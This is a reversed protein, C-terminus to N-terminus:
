RLIVPEPSRGEFSDAHNGVVARFGQAVRERDEPLRRWRTAEIPVAQDTPTACAVIHKREDKSIVLDQASAHTVVAYGLQKGACFATKPSFRVRHLPATFHDCMRPRHRASRESRKDPLGDYNRHREISGRRGSDRSRARICRALPWLRRLFSARMGQWEERQYLERGASECLSSPGMHALGRRIPSRPRISMIWTPTQDRASGIM